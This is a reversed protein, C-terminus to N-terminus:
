WSQGEGNNARCCTQWREIDKEYRKHLKWDYGAIYQLGGARGSISETIAVKCQLSVFEDKKGWHKGGQLQLIGSRGPWPRESQVKAQWSKTPGNQCAKMPLQRVSDFFVRDFSPSSSYMGSQHVKTSWTQVARSSTKNRPESKLPEELTPSGGHAAASFRLM